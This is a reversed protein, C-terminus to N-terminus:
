FNWASPAISVVMYFAYKFDLHKAHCGNQIAFCITVKRMPLDAVPSFNDETFDWEENKCLVSLAKYHEIIEEENRKASCFSNPAWHYTARTEASVKGVTFISWHKFRLACPIIVSRKRCRATRIEQFTRAWRASAYTFQYYILSSGRIRTTPITAM